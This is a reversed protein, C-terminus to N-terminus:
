IIYEPSLRIPVTCVNKPREIYNLNWLKSLCTKYVNVLLRNFSGFRDLKKTIAILVNCLRWNKVNEYSNCNINKGIKSSLCGECSGGPYM